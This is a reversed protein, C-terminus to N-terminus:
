KTGYQNHRINFGTISYRPTFVFYTTPNVRFSLPIFFDINVSHNLPKDISTKSGLIRFSDRSFVFGVDLGPAVNFLSTSDFFSRQIGLKFGVGGIIYPLHLSARFDTQNGVGSQMGIASVPATKMKESFFIYGNANISDIKPTIGTGLGAYGHINGKGSPHGQNYYLHNTVVCGPLIPLLFLLLLNKRFSM